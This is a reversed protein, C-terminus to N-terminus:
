VRDAGWPENLQSFGDEVARELGEISTLLEDAAASVYPDAESWLYGLLLLRAKVDAIAKDTKSRLTRPKIGFAQARTEVKPM